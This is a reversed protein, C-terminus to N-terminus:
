IYHEARAAIMRTGITRLPGSEPLIRRRWGGPVGAMGEAEEEEEEEEEKEEEVVVEVVREEPEMQV